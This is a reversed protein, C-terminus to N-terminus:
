LGNIIRAYVNNLRNVDYSGSSDDAINVTINSASGANATTRSISFGLNMVSNAGVSQGTNIAISIQQGAVGNSQHWLSNQVAVPNASGGSVSFSTLTNDFSVSYGVPVTITVVISGSSSAGNVEQIGVVLGKKAGASFNADPLNIIASLDPGALATVSVLASQSCVGSTGTLTFTQVGSATLSASVASGTAPPTLPATPPASWQYATAGSATLSVVVGVNAQPLSAGAALNLVTNSGVTTTTTSVCGNGDVVTVSYTGPSSVTRINGSGPVAQGSGNTFSYSAGGSATLTVSTQACTLPGNNILTAIPLANVTLSTTASVRQGGSNVTLTFTQVGSGVATLVVSFATATTPSPSGIPPGGNELSWSYGGAINGITATFTIPSGVCVRNPVVAFGTITPTADTVVLNYATSATGGCGNADSVQVLVSYSGAQTPTGSLVGNGSLSLSTPLNSSVVSFSYTGSGGSATFSQSFPQNVTATTLTPNLVTLSTPNSQYEYAGRDITGGFVRTNGALDTLPGSVANYASNSGSNIAPSCANLAVSSGSAFPTITTTLNNGGDTYGTVSPEFLSYSASLSGGDTLVFTNTGGNNFLVSNILSITNNVNRNGQNYIAGGGVTATNNQLSCNVLSPNSINNYIAGGNSTVTNAQFWCNILIPNSANIYIAGGRVAANQQFSCNILSFSSGTDYIAGGSVLASNRQLSCNILRPSSSLSYIAGGREDTSNNGNANGGRIVFGDLVATNDLGNNDNKIVHYSNEANNAFDPGDDGSLDGSLTSSSPQDALPIITPRDGLQGETGRFGGYITVGPKMVFSISRNTGTTPKYLGQAVWVQAGCTAATNIATQLATGSFANTWSSGNQSGAGSQTVYVVTGCVPVANAVTLGYVTSAIGVCGNADSVQVLVSYSGAATPTGSLIGGISVSLSTPLTSNVVSFSYPGSGGSAMFTQSFAQGVTATMVAPNTIALATPNGQYEYAGRDILGGNYLRNNGALDTAPGSVTSYAQNSGTNIAVACDRLQTSTTSMFPTLTTTLNNGGDTYGTVGPEFLSYRASLLDGGYPYAISNAVGNNWLVSNVLQVNGGESCIAGGQDAQNGLFSCNTIAIDNCYIAGGRYTKNGLFSCNTLTMSTSASIAGGIGSSTNDQFICNVFTASVQSSLVGGEDTSTNNQFRCDTAILSGAALYMVGGNGDIASNNLFQCRTLSVAAVSYVNIVGGDVATNSEFTCDTLRLVVSGNTFVTGGFSGQNKKFSSNKVALTASGESYIAGGNQFSTNMDFVCNEILPSSNQNYVAGGHNSAYNNAFLCNRITPNCVPGYNAIAGGNGTGGESTAQTLVFGDLIARESLGTGNSIIQHSNDSDEGSDGLTGIDGSLTSSSPQGTVPNVGPRDGLQGETGRFGGYIAVGEKMSFSITRDTGTTPKYLGQAVWVQAGCTAATNIATQLATGSFANTWSSGNQLGAGAETVFVVTGCLPTTTQVELAGMDVRGGLIRPNAAVDTQPLNTASYPGSAVTVSAPNGANVAPSTSPLNLDSASVFPSSTTTLNGPGSTYGTITQDLLSYQATVSLSTAGQEKRFTDAGGTNWLVSNSLKITIPSTSQSTSNRALGGALNVMSCNIFETQVRGASLQNNYMFGQGTNDAILCNILQPQVVSTSPAQASAENFFLVGYYTGAQNNTFICNIFSPSVTANPGAVNVVCYGSNVSGTVFGTFLLNRFQPSCESSSGSTNNNSIAGTNTGNQPPTIVAGDLIATSTLRRTNYIVRYGNGALTGDGDIDASLTTSSPNSLNILPRQDLETETGEFGGYIAVDPLMEFGVARDSLTIQNSPKSVPKYVGRAIWIESLNGVCAYKLASQLDTFADDWSLGTNAGTANAKVYLRTPGSQNVTLSTVATAPTGGNSVTLTYSQSGSGSATLTQSFATTNATGSLPSSGNSLTYNYAGTVNGVTATFTVPSSACVASPTAAFNIISPPVPDNLRVSVTNSLRNACLLDLDGDGDVDGLAVSLPGDGVAPNPNTTPATFNGTGDNLRVSVNDSFYNATVLDLDGDADVDGLAIHYPYDGVAPDPNTPPAIFNGMGVNLRVSVNDYAINATLMDLDGDGDVDGLAVSYPGFEVAPDPNTPPATFNGQGDNLRVSVTNSNSNATLMDLDSDGDVDGLVVSVPGIEVAPDPNTPPATFNGQGDNLRVSVNNSYANACLLDLDGDGDVDGLAMGWPSEGVAPDPNFSPPTFNGMGDNLRVSVNDSISNATLLDLDGDGDVDGLAVNYPGNGVAPDPNSPPTTFNGMGDNLRVSVNDSDHNATLMDLDGDGDVDGLAVGWPSEGVAPDLNTASPTFNARGTGAVQTTFQYVQGRALRSGGTSQIATTSTVFVTEGPRFNTTPNFTLTSGSVSATGGQGNRLLGGRLQGILLLGGKSATSNSIPQDFTVSVNTNVPANNQNRAPNLATIVPVQAQSFSSLLVLQLGTFLLTLYYNKM